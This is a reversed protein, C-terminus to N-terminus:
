SRALSKLRPDKNGSIELRGLHEARLNIARRQDADRAAVIVDVAKARLNGVLMVPSKHVDIETRVIGLTGLGHAKFNGFLKPPPQRIVNDHGHGTSRE